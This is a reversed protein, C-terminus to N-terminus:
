KSLVTLASVCPSGPKGRDNELSCGRKFMITSLFLYWPRLKVDCWSKDKYICRCDEEEGKLVFLSGSELIEVQVGTPNVPLAGVVGCHKTTYKPATLSELSQREGHQCKKLSYRWCPLINIDM